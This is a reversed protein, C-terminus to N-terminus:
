VVEVRCLIVAHCEVQCEPLLSGALCWCCALV